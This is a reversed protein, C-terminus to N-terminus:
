SATVVVNRMDAQLHELTEIIESYLAALDVLKHSLGADAEALLAPENLSNKFDVLSQNPDSLSAIGTPKSESDALMEMPAIKLPTIPTIGVAEALASKLAALIAKVTACSADYAYYSQEVMYAIQQYTRNFQFNSQLLM